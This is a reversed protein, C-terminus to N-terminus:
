GVGVVSNASDLHKSLLSLHQTQSLFESKRRRVGHVPTQASVSVGM